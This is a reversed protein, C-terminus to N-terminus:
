RGCGRPGAAERPMGPMANSGPSGSLRIAIKPFEYDICSDYLVGGIAMLLETTVAAAQPSGFSCQGLEKGPGGSPKKGYSLRSEEEEM